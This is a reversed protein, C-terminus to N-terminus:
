NYIRKSYNMCQMYLYHVLKSNLTFNNVDVAMVFPISKYTLPNVHFLHNSVYPLISSSRDDFNSPDDIWRVNKYRLYKRLDERSIDLLPRFLALSNISKKQAIGILGDIGSGRSLRMIITEANDELTHGLLVVAINKSNAWQWLLRHRADRASKQLNGSPKGCWPITTHEVSLINSHKMVYDCESQSKPRLRHDITVAKLNRGNQAAWDATLYLLALSDGGGSVSVGINGNPINKMTASFKKLLTGVFFM